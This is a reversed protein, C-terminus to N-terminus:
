PAPVPLVKRVAAFQCHRAWGSRWDDLDLEREDDWDDLYPVYRNGGPTTWVSGLFVVPRDRQVDPYKEGFALAHELKAPELGMAALERVVDDSEMDRDFDVLIVEQEVVGTGSIPFNAATIDSNNYGCACAAIMADFPRGYDVVISFRTRTKLEAKVLADAFNDIFVRGEPQGLMKLAEETGGKALVATRLAALLDVTNETVTTSM